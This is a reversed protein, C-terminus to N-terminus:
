VGSRKIGRGVGRENMYGHATDVLRYGSMLANYVAEEADKPQMLFTGIGVLPAKTGNNLTIFEM